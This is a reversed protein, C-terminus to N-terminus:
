PHNLESKGMQIASRGFANTKCIQFEDMIYFEYGINYITAAIEMSEQVHTGCETKAFQYGETVLHTAYDRSSKEKILGRIIEITNKNCFHIKINRDCYRFMTQPTIQAPGFSQVYGTTILSVPWKKTKTFLDYYENEIARNYDKWDEWWNEDNLALTFKLLHDQTLDTQDFNNNREM